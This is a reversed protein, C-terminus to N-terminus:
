KHPEDFLGGIGRGYKTAVQGIQGRESRRRWGHWQGGEKREVKKKLAGPLNFQPRLVKKRSPSMERPRGKGEREKEREREGEKDVEWMDQSM